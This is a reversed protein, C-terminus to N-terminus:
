SRIRVNILEHRNTPNTTQTSQPCLMAVSVHINSPDSDGTVSVTGGGGLGGGLECHGGSWRDGGVTGGLGGTGVWLAGWVM